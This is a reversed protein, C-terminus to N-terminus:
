KQVFFYEQSLHKKTSSRLFQFYRRTNKLFMGIDGHKKGFFHLILSQFQNLPLPLNLFTTVRDRLFTYALYLIITMAPSTKRRFLVWSFLKFHETLTEWVREATYDHIYHIYIKIYFCINLVRNQCLSIENKPMFLM